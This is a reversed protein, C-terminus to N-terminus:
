KKGELIEVIQGLLLPSAMEALNGKLLSLDEITFEVEDKEIIEKCLKYARLKIELSLPRGMPLYNLAGIFVARLTLPEEEENLIPKGDFTKLTKTVNIIM